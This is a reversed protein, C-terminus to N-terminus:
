SSNEESSARRNSELKQELSELLEDFSQNVLFRDFSGRYHNAISVGEISVDFVRQERNVYFHIPVEERSQTILKMRVEIGEPTPSSGVLEVREKGQFRDIQQLYYDALLDEFVAIFRQRQREDIKRWHVGLSRRAMASWDFIEDSIERLRRHRETRQASDRLAPDRLVGLARDVSDKVLEVEGALVEGPPCLVALLALWSFAKM